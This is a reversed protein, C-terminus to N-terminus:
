FLFAGDYTRVSAYQIGQYSAKPGFLSAADAQSDNSVRNRVWDAMTLLPSAWFTVDLSLVSNASDEPASPPGWRGRLKTRFLFRALSGSELASTAAAAAAAATASPSSSASGRPGPM